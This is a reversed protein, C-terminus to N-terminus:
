RPLNSRSVSRKSGNKVRVVVDITGNGEVGADNERRWFLRGTPLGDERPLGVSATVELKGEGAMKLTETAKREAGERWKGEKWDSWREVVKVEIKESRIDVENGVLSSAFARLEYRTTADGGLACSSPSDAPLNFSFPFRTRGKLAPYYSGNIPHSNSVVANSPPLGAGQFAVQATLLRRTSTHDLSRLEAPHSLPHTSSCHTFQASSDRRSRSETLCPPARPSARGGRGLPGHRSNPVVVVGVARDLGFEQKAAVEELGGPAELVFLSLCHRALTSRLSGGSLSWGALGCM